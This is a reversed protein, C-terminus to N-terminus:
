CQALMTNLYSSVLRERIDERFLLMELFRKQGNIRTCPAWTSKKIFLTSFRTVSDRKYWSTPNQVTLKNFLCPYNNFSNNSCSPSWRFFINSSNPSDQFIQQFLKSYLPLITLAAQLIGSHTILASKLTGSHTTLAAQCVCSLITLAAQLIRYLITLAAQLIM